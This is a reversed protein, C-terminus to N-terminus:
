SRPKWARLTNTQGRRAWVIIIAVKGPAEEAAKGLHGEGAQHLHLAAVSHGARDKSDHCGACTGQPDDLVDQSPKLGVWM